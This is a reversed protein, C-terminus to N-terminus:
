KTAKVPATIASRASALGPGTVTVVARVRRGVDATTLKYTQGTGKPAAINQYSVEGTTPNTRLERQWQYAFKYKGRGSVSPLDVKVSKGSAVVGGIKVMDIRLGSGDARKAPLQLTVSADTYGTRHATVKVSVRLSADALQPVYTATTAGAIATTPAGPTVPSRYWQYTYSTPTPTFTPLKATLRKGVWAEGTITPLPSSVQFTGPPPTPAAKFTPTLTIHYGPMPFEFPNVSVIPVYAAPVPIKTDIQTMSLIWRNFVKGAPVTATATFMQGPSYAGSGTGNVVTLLYKGSAVFTPTLTVPFNPMEFDVPNMGVGKFPLLYSVNNGKADTATWWALDKGAPVNATVEVGRGEVYKGSGTGNNVTLQYTTSSANKFTATLTVANGPMVFILPNSTAMTLGWGAATVQDTGVDTISETKDGAIGIWSIPQTLDIGSATWHDFLKGAPVTATVGVTQGKVYDGSGTGNTVTVSYTAAPPIPQGDAKFSATATVPFNYMMFECPNDWEEWTDGGGSFTWKDFVKGAPITASLTVPTDLRYNGSGSGNNVTLQYTFSPMLTVANAPMTFTLPNTTQQAANLVIGTATWSEFVRGPPETAVATVSTGPYFEGGGSGDHVTLPVQAAKFTATLTVNYNPMTFSLYGQSSVSQGPLDVVNGDWDVATWEDFVKGTPVTPIITPTVAGVPYSNVALLNITGNVVTVRYAKAPNNGRLKIPESNGHEFEAIFTHDGNPLSYTLYRSDLTIVTTDGGLNLMFNSPNVPIDDETLRIFEDEAHDIVATLTGSGDYVGFHQLVPYTVGAEAAVPLAALADAPMPATPTQTLASAPAAATGFALASVLAATVARLSRRRKRASSHADAILSSFRSATFM